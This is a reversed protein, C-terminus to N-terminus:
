NPQNAETQCPTETNLAPETTCGSPSTGSPKSTKQALPANFDEVLKLIETAQKPFELLDHALEKIDIDGFNHEAIGLRLKTETLGAMEASESDVFAGIEDETLLEMLQSEDTIDAGKNKAKMAFSMLAKKDIGKQVKKLANSIEDKGSVSWLRVKV